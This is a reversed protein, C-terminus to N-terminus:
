IKIALPYHVINDSPKLPKKKWEEDLEFILRTLDLAIEILEEFTSGLAVLGQVDDSTALFYHSGDDRFIQEIKLNVIKEM